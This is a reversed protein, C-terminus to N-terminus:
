EFPHGLILELLRVLDDNSYYSITVTGRGKRKATVRVDTGLRRRLADEIRRQEAQVVRVPAKTRRLRPKVAEAAPGDGRVVAETERVSWGNAVVARAIRVM